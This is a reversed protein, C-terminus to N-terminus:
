IHNFKAAINYNSYRKDDTVEREVPIFPPIIVEDTEETLEIEMLLTPTFSDVNEFVDLQFYQGRWIFTYRHKKITQLQPDAEKLLARYEQASIKREEEHRVGDRLKRKETYTFLTSNRPLEPEVHSWARVRREVDSTSNLYTQTIRFCRHPVPIYEIEFGPRVLFKREIELPAPIDIAHCIERIARNVKGQFSISNENGEVIEFNPVFRFHEHRMWINRLAQDQALADEPTERRAPNEYNYFEEAGDAASALHIVATYREDCLQTIDYGLDHVISLFDETFAEGDLTGRDTLILTNSESYIGAIREMEYEANIQQLLIEKQIEGATNKDKMLEALNVGASSLYFAREPVLLPKIGLEPLRELAHEQVKTKGSCPGGTLVIKPTTM